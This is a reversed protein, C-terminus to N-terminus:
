FDLLGLWLFDGYLDRKVKSHGRESYVLGSAVM